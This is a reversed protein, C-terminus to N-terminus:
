GHFSIGSQRYIKEVISLLPELPTASNVYLPLKSYLNGLAEKAGPLFGNHLIGKEVENKYVSSYKAVFEEKPLEDGVIDFVKGLIQSRTSTGLESLLKQMAFHAKTHKPFIDFWVDRKLQLSDVITGDWDFVITKIKNM